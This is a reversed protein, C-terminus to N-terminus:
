GFSIQALSFFNNAEEAASRCINVYLCDVAVAEVEEEIEYILINMCPIM